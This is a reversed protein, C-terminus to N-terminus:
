GDAPPSTRADALFPDLPIELLARAGGEARNELRLRHADAYLLALRRRTNDLGIHRGSADAARTGGSIVEAPFGPGDDEIEIALHRESRRARVRIRGGEVRPSVAHRVSNEILTVLLLAPVKFAGCDEAVDFEFELRPGFRVREIELYRRALAIEDALAVEQEDGQDLTTRLLSAISALVNLASKSDGERILGGVSHLANFLFHPHVQSKLTELQVRAIEGELKAQRLRADAARREEHQSKLFSYVAAGTALVLWYVLLERTFRFWTQGVPRSGALWTDVFVVNALVDEYLQFAQAVALSMPLQVAAALLWSRRLRFVWRAFYVLAGGLLGWPAWVCLQQLYLAGWEYERRRMELVESVQVTTAGAAALTVLAALLARRWPSGVWLEIDQAFRASDTPSSM